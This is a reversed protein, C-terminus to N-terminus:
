SLDQNYIRIQHKQECSLCLFHLHFDKRREETALAEVQETQLGFLSGCNECVGSANQYLARLQTKKKKSREFRDNINLRGILSRAEEMLSFSKGTIDIKRREVEKLHLLLRAAIEREEHVLKKIENLLTEDTTQKFNM